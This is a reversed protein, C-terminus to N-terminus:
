QYRSIDDRTQGDKLSEKLIKIEYKLVKVQRKVRLWLAELVLCIVLLIVIIVIAFTYALSSM